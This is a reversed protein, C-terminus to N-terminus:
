TNALGRLVISAMAARRLSTYTSRRGDAASCCTRCVLARGLFPDSSAHLGLSDAVARQQAHKAAEADREARADQPARRGCFSAQL